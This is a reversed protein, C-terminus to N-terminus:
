FVTYYKIYNQNVSESTLYSQLTIPTSTGSTDGLPRQVPHTCDTMVLKIWLVSCLSKVMVGGGGGGAGIMCTTM